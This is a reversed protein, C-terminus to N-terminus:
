VQTRAPRARTERWATQQCDICNSRHHVALPVILERFKRCFTRNLRDAEIRSRNTSWGDRTSYIQSFHLKFNPIPCDFYNNWRYSRQLLLLHTLRFTILKLERSISYNIDIFIVSILLQKPSIFTSLLNTIKLFFEIYNKINILIYIIYNIQNLLQFFIQRDFDNISIDCYVNEM